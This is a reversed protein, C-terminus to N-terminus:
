VVQSADSTVPKHGSLGLKRALMGSFAIMIGATCTLAALILINTEYAGVTRGLADVLKGSFLPGLSGMGLGATVMCGFIIGRNRPTTYDAVFAELTPVSAAQGVGFLLYPVFLLGLPMAVILAASLGHLVLAIAAVKNRSMRDSLIGALPQIAIGPLNLIFLYWSAQEVAHFKTDLYFASIDLISWTVIERMGVAFVVFSVFVILATRLSIRPRKDDPLPMHAIHEEDGVDKVLLLVGAACLIGMAGFVVSIQRWDLGAWVDLRGSILPAFAFGCSAGMGTIGFAWGKKGPYMKTILANAIPHYTGGGLGALAWFLHMVVIGKAGLFSFGIVAIGNVLGGLGLALRASIRNALLGFALNSLAYAVLYTTKFAMIATISNAGFFERINENLPSLFVSYGHNMGHFISVAILSILATRAVKTM